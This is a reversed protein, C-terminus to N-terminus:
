IPCLLTVLHAVTSKYESSASLLLLVVLNNVLAADFAGFTILNKTCTPDVGVLTNRAPLSILERAWYTPFYEEGVTTQFIVIFINVTICFKTTFNTAFYERTLGKALLMNVSKVLFQSGAGNAPSHHFVHLKVHPCDVSAVALLVEVTLKTAFTELSAALQLLMPHIHMQLQTRVDAPVAAPHSVVIVAVSVLVLFLLM